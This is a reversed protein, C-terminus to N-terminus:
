PAPECDLGVVRGALRGDVFRGVIEVEVPEEPPREELRELGEVVAVDYESEPNPHDALLTGDPGQEVTLCFTRGVGLVERLLDPISTM